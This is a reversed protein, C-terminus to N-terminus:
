SKIILKLNVNCIGIVVDLQEFSNRILLNELTVSNQVSRKGLNKWKM